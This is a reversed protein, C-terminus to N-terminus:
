LCCYVLKNAKYVDREPRGLRGSSVLFSDTMALKRVGAVPKGKIEIPSTQDMLSEITIFILGFM